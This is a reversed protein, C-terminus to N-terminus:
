EALYHNSPHTRGSHGFTQHGRHRGQLAELSRGPVQIEGAGGLLQVQGLARHAFLDRLEFLHQAM